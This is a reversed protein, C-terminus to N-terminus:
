MEARKCIRVLLAEAGAGPGCSGADHLNAILQSVTHLDQVQTTSSKALFCFKM